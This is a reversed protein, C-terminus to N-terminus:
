RSSELADILAGIGDCMSVVCSKVQPIIPSDAALCPCTRDGKASAEHSTGSPKSVAHNEAPPPPAFRRLLWARPLDVLSERRSHSSTQM